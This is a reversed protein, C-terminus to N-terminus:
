EAGLHFLRSPARCFFGAKVRSWSFIFSIDCSHSWQPPLAVFHVSQVRMMELGKEGVIQRVVDDASKLQIELLDRQLSVGMIDQLTQCEFAVSYSKLARGTQGLVGSHRFPFGKLPNRLEVYQSHPGSSAM